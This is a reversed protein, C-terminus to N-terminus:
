VKMEIHNAKIYSIENFIKAILIPEGQAQDTDISESTIVVDGEATKVANRLLSVVAGILLGLAGDELVCVATTVLLTVFDIKDM